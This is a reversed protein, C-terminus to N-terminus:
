KQHGKQINKLYDLTQDIIWDPTSAGSALAIIDDPKFSLHSLELATEILIVEGTGFKKAIEALKMTNSSHKGGIVITKTARASLSRIEEQRQRTAQCLTNEVQLHPHTEKLCSAILQFKDENFTTQSLLVSKPPLDPPLYKCQALSSIVLANFAYGKLGIVEPHSPDGTIVVQYNEKAYDSILQQVRKVKPCTLDVVELATSKLAAELDPPIGHTRIVV